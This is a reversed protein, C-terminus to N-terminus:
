WAVLPKGARKSGVIRKNEHLQLSTQQQGSTRQASRKSHYMQDCLLWRHVYDGLDPLDASERRTLDGEHPAM